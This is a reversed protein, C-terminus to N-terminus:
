VIFVLIFQPRVYSLFRVIRTRFVAVAFIVSGGLMSDVLIQHFLLYAPSGKPSNVKSHVLVPLFIHSSWGVVLEPPTRIPLLVARPSARQGALHCMPKHQRMPSCATLSNEFDRRRFRACDFRSRRGLARRLASGAPMPKLEGSCRCEVVSSFLANSSMLSSIAIIFFSFWGFKTDNISTSSSGSSSEKYMTMSIHL